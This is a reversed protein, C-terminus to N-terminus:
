VWRCGCERSCARNCVRIHWSACCAGDCWHPVHTDNVNKFFDIDFCACSLGSSNRKARSILKEGTSEFMRRNYVGTLPDIVSERVKVFTDEVIDRMRKLRRIQQVTIKRPSSDIVCLTGICVDEDLMIPLGIYFRIAPDGVVLPNDMFRPDELTNEVLLLEKSFVVHGCFSIDRSTERVSLGVSSKFWQRDRDVISVLAIPVNLLDSALQTIHDYIREHPTDLIELSDICALRFEENEPIQPALM